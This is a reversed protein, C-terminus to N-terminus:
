GGMIAIMGYSPDRVDGGSGSSVRIKLSGTNISSTKSTGNNVSVYLSATSASANRMAMGNAIYDTSPLATTFTITYLGQGTRSVSSVNHSYNITCAGNSSRGDFQVMARFGLQLINKTAGDENFYYPEYLQKAPSEGATKQRVYYGGKMDVPMSSPDSSQEPMHVINHRGDKDSDNDDWFHDKVMEQSIYSFANNIPAKNASVSNSGAIPTDSWTM